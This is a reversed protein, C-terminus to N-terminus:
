FNLNMGRLRCSPILKVSNLLIRRVTVEQWHRQAEFDGFMPPTGAGSYGAQGVGLRVVLALFVVGAAVPAAASAM